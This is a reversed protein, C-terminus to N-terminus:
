LKFALDTDMADTVSADAETMIQDDAPPDNADAQIFM